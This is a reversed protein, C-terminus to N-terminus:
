CEGASCVRVLGLSPLFSRLRHGPMAKTFIDALQSNTPCYILELEQRRVYDRLVHYKVQIHKTRKHDEPNKSLYICAQNDEHLTVIGQPFGIDSLLQKLWICENAALVAAYYESEAASQACVSQKTSQWSIPSSGLLFCYGSTSRYQEMNAYAADVYGTLVMPQNSKFALGYDPHSRLYRYIQSVLDCHIKKPKDLYRCVVSVAAAIDPRTGLMAYMLAGVMSRYPYHDVTTSSSAAQELLDQVNHPLPSASGGKGIFPAFLDLKKKIYQTQDITITGDASTNFSMGLYWELPGGEDMQFTTRMKQRFADITTLSKGACLIDDVYLGVLLMSEGTGRVYICPDAKSATFGQNLLFNHIVENWERSSQRLGYLTKHLLLKQKASGLQYGPPQDMWIEEKLKGRLFAVPVDDQFVKMGLSAAIAVLTRISKFKVVPAFTEVFDTGYKQTFGKAVLRAKYRKVNGHRDYKKAFVWRCKVPRRNRPINGLSWTQQQKISALEADCAAKWFPAEPSRMAEEYTQPIRDIISLCTDLSLDASLLAQDCIGSTHLLLEDIDSTQSLADHFLEPSSSTDSSTSDIIDSEGYDDYDDSNHFSSYDPLSDMPATENFVVDRSYFVTYDSLRLLKYGKVADSLGDDDYGIFRCKVGSPELKNRQEIPVHAYCVSGFVRLHSIDPKRNFLLEFPTKTANSHIVRNHIYCATLQADAYFAEPLCSAIHMARARETITRHAREARGPHTHHYPLGREKTIGISTIYEQFIGMFETGSDTRVRKIRKGTEREYRSQFRKFVELVTESSKNPLTTMVCYSSKADVFKINLNTGNHALTPFPGQIDIEIVDLIDDPTSGSKPTPKRISKGLACPECVTDFTNGKQLEIGTTAKLSRRISDDHCHGLRAHVLKADVVVNANDDSNPVYKSVDEPLEISTDMQILGVDEDFTGTALPIGNKDSIVLRDNYIHQHYDKKMIQIGSVLNKSFSPVHAVDVLELDGFRIKGTGTIPITRGNEATGVSGHTPSCGMPKDKFYSRPSAGTDYFATYKSLGKNDNNSANTDVAANSIDNKRGFKKQKAHSYNASENSSNAIEMQYFEILDDCVDLYTPYKDNESSFQKRVKSCFKRYRGRTSLAVLMTTILDLDNPTIGTLRCSALAVDMMLVLDTANDSNMKVNRIESCALLSDTPGYLKRLRQLIIACPQGIGISISLPGSISDVILSAFFADFETPVQHLFADGGIKSLHYQLKVLWVLYNKKGLLLPLKINHLIQPIELLMDDEETKAKKPAM